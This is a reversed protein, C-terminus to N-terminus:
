GTEGAALAALRARLPDLLAGYADARRTDQRLPGRVQAASATRVSRRATHSQLCAADFPLDCAALLARIEREPDALLDEYRQLLIQAPAQARWADMATECLHLYDAIDALDCSFHPRLYFQQKFCSWGTEVPDRRVDIVRAGPLMARLIGAHKWNEPMKDTLRPRRERWRATDHLYEEGLRRWDHATAEAIWAPYPRRRRISERQILAGLEHLESAGEVDAHAALIQEVLTSGSRPLGVIFIAERGLTSDEPAPLSRTAALAAAVYDRLAQASWPASSRSRANAASVAAFADPYRGHDEELKGLAHGMAVRDADAIDKRALQALLADRDADSLARTKINALGRWADGSGPQVAIARRYQQEAEDLEGLHVLADGLLISAPPFDPALASARRLAAVAPESDGLMQLNRGLNFWPMPQDPALACARKWDAIAGARDGTEMRVGALDNLAVADDPWQALASEFAAIADAPRQEARRLLGLLRLAEPHRGSAALVQALLRDAIAPQRDRMARAAAQLAAIQEQPLGALRADPSRHQEALPPPPYRTTVHAEPITCHVAAARRHL